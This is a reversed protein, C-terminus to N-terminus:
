ASTCNCSIRRTDNFVSGVIATIGVVSLPGDLQRALGKGLLSRVMRM